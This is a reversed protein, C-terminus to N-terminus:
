ATRRPSHGARSGPRLSGGSLLRDPMAMDPGSPQPLNVTRTAALAAIQKRNRKIAEEFSVRLVRLRRGLPHTPIGHRHIFKRAAERSPFDYTAAITATTLYEPLSM